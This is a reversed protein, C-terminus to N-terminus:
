EGISRRRAPRDQSSLRVLRLGSAKLGELAAMALIRCDLPENRASPAKIGCAARWARTTKRLPRESTLGAYYDLGRGVPFHCFGAGPEEIRLRAIFADKLSEIGILYLPTVRSKGVRVPRRPWPPMSTM